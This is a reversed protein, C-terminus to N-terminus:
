ENRKIHLCAIIGPYEAPNHASRKYSLPKLSPYYFFSLKINNYNSNHLIERYITTTPLRVTGDAALEVMSLVPLTQHGVAAFPVIETGVILLRCFLDIEPPQASNCEKQATPFTGPVYGLIKCLSTDLLYTNVNTGEVKSIQIKPIQFNYYGPIHQILLKHPQLYTQLQEVLEVIHSFKLSPIAINITLQNNLVCTVNSAPIWLTRDPPIHLSILALSWEPAALTKHIPLRWVFSGGYPGGTEEADASNFYLLNDATAGAVAINGFNTNM